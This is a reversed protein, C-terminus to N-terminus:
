STEAVQHVTLSLDDNLAKSLKIQSGASPQKKPGPWARSPGPYRSAICRIYTHMSVGVFGYQHHVFYGFLGSFLINKFLVSFIKPLYKLRRQPLHPFYNKRKGGRTKGSALRGCASQIPEVGEKNTGSFRV